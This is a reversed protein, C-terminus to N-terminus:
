VNASASSIDALASNPDRELALDGISLVGLAKGNEVIPVRRIAKDRMLKVADEVKANPGLTQVDQSCVEGCKTKDPDRGEAIARVVIDRDTLIGFLRDGDLVLVDGIGNNKMKNAAASVPEDPKVSVPPGKPLIERIMTAM